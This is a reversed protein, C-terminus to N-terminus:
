IQPRSQVVYTVGDKIVGEIDQPCGFLGETIKGIEAIRSFLSTQYTKDVIMRDKSYDLVVKEEQDM